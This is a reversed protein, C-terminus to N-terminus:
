KPEQYVIGDSNLLDLKATGHTSSTSLIWKIVCKELNERSLRHGGEFMMGFVYHKFYEDRCDVLEDNTGFFAVTIDSDDPHIDDFQHKEMEEFANCLESTIEFESAGNQRPSFFTCVGIKYRLTKSVHFAPNVLIKRYGHMQQAYMGGMSTGIVFEPKKEKCLERLMTLAEQPYVPIDPSIIEWDPLLERLATATSSQGSSALGHLYIITKM